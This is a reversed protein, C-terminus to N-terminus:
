EDDTEYPYSEAYEEEDEEEEEWEAEESDESQEPTPPQADSWAKWARYSETDSVASSHPESSSRMMSPDYEMIGLHSNYWVGEDPDNYQTWYEPGEAGPGEAWEPGEGATGEAWEPGEARPGEAEEQRAIRHNVEGKIRLDIVIKKPAQPVAETGKAEEPAAYARTEAEAEGEEEEGWNEEWEQWDDQGEQEQVEEGGGRHWKNM